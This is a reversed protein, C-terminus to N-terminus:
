RSTVPGSDATASLGVMNTTVQDPIAPFVISQDAKLYTFANTKVTVGASPSYIRVDGQGVRVAGADGGGPHREPQGISAVNAGCLTM